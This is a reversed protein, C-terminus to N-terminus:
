QIMSKAEAASAPIVISLIEHHLGPMTSEVSPRGLEGHHVDLKSIQEAAEPHDRKLEALVKSKKCCVKQQAKQEIQKRKLKKEADTKKEKLEKVRKKYEMSLGTKEEICAYSSIEENIGAIEARLKEQAPTPAIKKTNDETLDVTTIHENESSRPLKDISSSSTPVTPVTVPPSSSTTAPKERNSWWGTIKSKSQLSRRLEALTNEHTVKKDGEEHKKMSDKVKNWLRIAENQVAQKSWQPYAKIAANYIETYKDNAM